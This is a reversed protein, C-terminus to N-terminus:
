DNGVETDGSAAVVIAGIGLAILIVSAVIGALRFVSNV